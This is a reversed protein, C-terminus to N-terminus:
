KSKRYIGNEDTVVNCRRRRGEQVANFIEKTIIAPHFDSIMYKNETTNPMRKHGKGPLTQPKMVIVSGTYKENALILPSKSWQDKRSPSLISKEALLKQVDVITAGNLYETYIM